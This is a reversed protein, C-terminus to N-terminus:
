AELGDGPRGSARLAKNAKASPEASASRHNRSFLDVLEKISLTPVDNLAKEIEEKSREGREKIVDCVSLYKHVGRNRRCRRVIFVPIFRYDNYKSDEYALLLHAGLEKALSVYDAGKFFNTRLSFNKGIIKKMAEYRSIPGGKVEVLGISGNKGIILDPWGGHMKNKMELWSFNGYIVRFGNAILADALIVVHAMSRIYLPLGRSQLLRPNVNLWSTLRLALNEEYDIIWWKVLDRWNV